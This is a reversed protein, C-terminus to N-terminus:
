KIEARGRYMVVIDTVARFGRGDARPVLCLHNAPVAAGAALNGGSTLDPLGSGTPDIVGARGARLILESGAGAALNKGAAVSVIKWELAPGGGPVHEEFYKEVYEHVYSQTVLPDSPTGPAGGGGAAVGTYILLFLGGGAALGTLALLIRRSM